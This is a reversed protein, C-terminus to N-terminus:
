RAVDRRGVHNGERALRVGVAEVLQLDGLVESVASTEGLRGGNEGVGAADADADSEQRGRGAVDDEGRRLGGREGLEVGATEVEGDAM